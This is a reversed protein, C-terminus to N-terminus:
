ENSILIPVYTRVGGNLQSTITLLEGNMSTDIANVTVTVYAIDGNVGMPTDISTTIHSGMSGGLLPNGESASIAWPGGTPGDSHFGVPFTKTVGKKISYGQTQANAGGGIPTLNLTINETDLPTVAYYPGAAAPVCPAHGASASKNSWSRQVSFSLTGADLVFGADGGDAGADAEEVVSFANTFFAGGPGYYFECADAVEDQFSQFVDWALHTEDFGYYAAIDNPHPDTSAEILEHSASSTANRLDAGNCQLIVAYTVDAGALVFSSHYGGIGQQCGDSGQVTLDTATSLYLTYISNGNPAPLGYQAYNTVHDQLWAQLATDSWANIPMETLRVHNLPGSTAPGVGYESTTDSWYASHGIDDGFSELATANPENPWTVTVIEPAALTPGGQDQISPVDPTFAPYVSSADGHNLPASAEAEVAADKLGADHDSTDASGTDKTSSTSADHAKVGGSDPTVKTHGTDAHDGADPQVVGSSATEGCATVLLTLGAFLLASGHGIGLIRVRM